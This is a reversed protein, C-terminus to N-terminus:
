GWTFARTARTVSATDKREGNSRIKSDEIDGSGAADCLGFLLQDGSVIRCDDRSELPFDRVACPALIPVQQQALREKSHSPILIGIPVDGVRKIQFRLANLQPPLRAFDKEAVAM